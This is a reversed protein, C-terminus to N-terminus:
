LLGRVATILGSGKAVDDTGGLAVYEKKVVKVADDIAKATISSPDLKALASAKPNKQRLKRAVVYYAVYFKLNNRERSSMSWRDGRLREDVKRVVIACAHYMQIPYKPNFVQLYTEDRKLLSSPRARATNPAYLAIAMVAQALQPIGVIRNRPKGSNKYFNKRRDYYLQKSRFFAEIDRQIKETARLSAQQVQTQSNTARIIRDRAAEDETVIVRVLVKRSDGTRIGRSVYQLLESSTQLGNVIQPTEVDLTKSRQVAKSAIITVGNNLWWFDDGEGKTLTDQIEDNVVTRGQYDRVNAEFLQSRQRGDETRIFRCYSEIPVLCVFGESDSTTLIEACDLAYSAQPLKRALSLLASAGVFDVSVEVQSDM